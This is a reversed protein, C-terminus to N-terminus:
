SLGQCKLCEHLHSEQAAQLCCLFGRILMVSVVFACYPKTESIQLHELTAGGLFASLHLSVHLPLSIMWDPELNEDIDLLHYRLFFIYIRSKAFQFLYRCLLPARQIGDYRRKQYTEVEFGIVYAYQIAECASIKQRLLQFRCHRNPVGPGACKARGAFVSISHMCSQHASLRQNWFQYYLQSADIM